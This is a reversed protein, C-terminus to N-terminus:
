KKVPPTSDDATEGTRVPFVTPTLVRVRDAEFFLPQGHALHIHSVIGNLRDLDDPELAGCVSLGRVSCAACPNPAPAPGKEAPKLVM